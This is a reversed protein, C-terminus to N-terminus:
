RSSRSRSRSRALRHVQGRDRGVEDAIAGVLREVVRRGRALLLQALAPAVLYIASFGPERAARETQRDDRARDGV